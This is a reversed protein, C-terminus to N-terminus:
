ARGEVLYLGSFVANFGTLDVILLSKPVIAAGPNDHSGSLVMSGPHTHVWGMMTGTWSAPTAIDGRWLRMRLILPQIGSVNDWVTFVANNQSINEVNGDTTMVSFGYHNNTDPSSGDLNPSVRFGPLYASAGDYTSTLNYITIDFLNFGEILPIVPSAQAAFSGSQASGGSGGGVLSLGDGPLSLGSM